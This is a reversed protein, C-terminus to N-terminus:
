GHTRLLDEYLAQYAKAVTEPAYYQNLRTIVEPNVTRKSSLGDIIADALTSADRPPVIKGMGTETIPQRVGPLDTAVVPTGCLMAEVQVMGFSETRNISPLVLVDCIDYFASKEKETVVGLFTWHDGLKEIMPMLKQQYREEGPVNEYMGVFLVRAQPYVDLVRPMADVLYEVGKETALRAVMGIIRQGPKIKHLEKFKDVDEESFGSNVVPPQIVALKGLYRSLFQSHEAYDKTNHVIADALNASLRHMLHTAWGALQNLFGKPMELDCHYTIAVPKGRLKALLSVLGADFQPIHLHVVDTDGMLAWVKFLLKPMIVGKTLRFLVPLRLIRVSGDDEELPLSPDYQSTLITVQHGLAAFAQAQRVAYVTLGSKYPQYYTLVMLIRM